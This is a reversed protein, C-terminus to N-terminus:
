RKGKTKQRKPPPAREEPESESDEDEDGSVEGDTVEEEDDWDDEGEGEDNDEEGSYVGMAEDEDEVGDDEDDDDEEGEGGKKGKKAAAKKRAVNAEQEARRQKRLKEREAHEKQQKATEAKSKKVIGNTLALGRVPVIAFFCKSFEHFIVAGPRGPIGETIKVLRLEMRPGIEDLRVARKAGKKNNRGVYDDALRVTNGEEGEAASSAYGDSTTGTGKRRLVFDAIDKENSLDLPHHSTAPDLVKRVRKSVGAPKVAIRYHRWDLTGRAPDYSILVVRRASSLTLTHPSLPPFLSQFAKM